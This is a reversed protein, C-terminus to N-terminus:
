QIAGNASRAEACKSFMAKHITMCELLCVVFKRYKQSINSM